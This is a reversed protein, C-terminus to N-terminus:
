YFTVCYKKVVINSLISNYKKKVNSIITKCRGIVCINIKFM